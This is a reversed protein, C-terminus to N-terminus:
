HWPRDEEGMRDDGAGGVHVEELAQELVDALSAGAGGAPKGGGGGVEAGGGSRELEQTAGGAGVGAGSRAQQAQQQQQPPLPPQSHAQQRELVAWPDQSFTPRYYAGPNISEDGEHAAGGRGGRGRGRGGRGRGGGYGGGYGGAMDPPPQSPWGGRGGAQPPGGSHNRGGRGGGEYMGGDRNFRTDQGTRQVKHQHPVGNHPGMGGYAPQAQQQWTPIHQWPQQPPPPAGIPVHGAHLAPGGRGPHGPPGGRGMGRNM